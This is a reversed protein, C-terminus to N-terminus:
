WPAAEGGNRHWRCNTYEIDRRQHRGGRQANDHRHSVVDIAIMPAVM